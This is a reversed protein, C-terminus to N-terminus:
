TKDNPTGKKKPTTPKDILLDRLIDKQNFIKEVDKIIKDVQENIKKPEIIDSPTLFYSIFFCLHLFYQIITKKSFLVSLIKM